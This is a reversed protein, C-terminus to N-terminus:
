LGSEAPADVVTRRDTDATNVIEAVQRRANPTQKVLFFISSQCSYAPVPSSTVPASYHIIDIAHYLVFSFYPATRSIASATLFVLILGLGFRVDVRYPVYM